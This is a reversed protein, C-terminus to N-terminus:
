LYPVLIKKARMWQYLNSAIEIRERTDFCELEYTTVKGLEPHNHTLKDSEIFFDSKLGLKEGQLVLKTV